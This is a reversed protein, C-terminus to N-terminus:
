GSTGMSRIHSPVAASLPQRVIVPSVYEGVNKAVFISHSM